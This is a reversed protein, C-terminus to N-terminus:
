DTRTCEWHLYASALPERDFPVIVEALKGNGWNIIYIYPPYTIDKREEDRSEVVLVSTNPGFPNTGTAMYHFLVKPSTEREKM